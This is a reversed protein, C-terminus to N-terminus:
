IKMHDIINIMELCKNTMSMDDKSSYMDLVNSM